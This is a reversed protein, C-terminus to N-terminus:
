AVKALAIITFRIESPDRAMFGKIVACADKLFTEKTTTGHDVAGDKRGDLEYLRDNINSCQLCPSVLMAIPLKQNTSM